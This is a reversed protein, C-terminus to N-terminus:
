CSVDKKWFMLKRLFKKIYYKKPMNKSRDNIDRILKILNEREKKTYRCEWIKELNIESCYVKISDEGIYEENGDLLFLQYKYKLSKLTRYRAIQFRYDDFDVVFSEVNKVNNNLYSKISKHCATFVCKDKLCANLLPKIDIM